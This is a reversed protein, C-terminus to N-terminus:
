HAFFCDKSPLLGVIEYLENNFDLYKQYNGKYLYESNKKIETFRSCNYEDSFLGNIKYYCNIDEKIDSVCIKKLKLIYISDIKLHCNCYIGEDIIEPKNVDFPIKFNWILSDNGNFFLMEKNIFSVNSTEKYQQSIYKLTFSEQAKCGFFSFLIVISYITKM